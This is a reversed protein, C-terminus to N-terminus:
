THIVGRLTISVKKMRSCESSSSSSFLVSCSDGGAAGLHSPSWRLYMVDPLVEPVRADSMLNMNFFAPEPMAVCSVIAEIYTTMSHRRLADPLDIAGGLVAQLGGPCAPIMRFRQRGVFATAKDLVDEDLHLVSGFFAQQWQIDELSQARGCSCLLFTRGSRHPAPGIANISHSLKTIQHHASVYTCCGLYTLTRGGCAISLVHMCRSADLQGMTQQMGMM